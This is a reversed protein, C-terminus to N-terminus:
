YTTFDLSLNMGKKREGLCVCIPEETSHRHTGPVTNDLALDCMQKVM